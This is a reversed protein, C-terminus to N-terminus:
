LILRWGVDADEVTVGSTVIMAAALVSKCM